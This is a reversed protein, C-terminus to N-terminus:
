CWCTFHAPFNSFIFAPKLLIQALWGHMASPNVLTLFTINNKEIGTSSNDLPRNRSCLNNQWIWSNWLKDKLQIFAKYKRCSLVRCVLFSSHNKWAFCTVKRLCGGYIRWVKCGTVKIRKWSQFFMKCTMAVISKHGSNRLQQFTYRLLFINFCKSILNFM